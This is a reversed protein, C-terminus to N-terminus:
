HIHRKSDRSYEQTHFCGQIRNNCMGQLIQEAEQHSVTDRYTVVLLIQQM